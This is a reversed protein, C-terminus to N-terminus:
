PSCLHGGPAGAWITWTTMGIPFGGILKGPWSTQMYSRCMALAM